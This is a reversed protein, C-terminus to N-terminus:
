RGELRGLLVRAAELHANRASEGDKEALDLRAELVDLALKQSLPVLTGDAAALGEEARRCARALSTRWDVNAPDGQVLGRQIGLEEHFWTYAQTLDGSRLALNGLQECVFALDRQWHSNEPDASALARRLRLSETFSRRATDLDGDDLALGGLRVHSTAVARQWLTDQPEAEARASKVALSKTYWDRAAELDGRQGALAGLKDYSVVLDFQWQENGPESEVLLRKRALSALYRANAADLKGRKQALGGLRNFSVALDRQWQLNKPDRRTLRELIERGAEFLAEAEESRGLSLLVGGLKGYGVALTHRFRGNGPRAAVLREALEVAARYEREVRALDGHSRALDGRRLHSGARSHLTAPDGGTEARLRELLTSSADLLRRRVGATGAVDKLERDVTFVIEDAVGLAGRLRSEALRAKKFAHAALGVLSAGVAATGGFALLQRFRGAARSAQAFRLELRNLETSLSLLQPLRPDRDWLLRRDCGREEWVLAAHWAARLLPLTEAWAARWALLENWTLVLSDHAPEVYGGGAVLLRAATLEAVVADIRRQEAADGVQLERRSVRRRALRGGEQTSMRLFLRRITAQRAADSSELLESARNQLAGAVGGATRYDEATLARDTEGSRRRRLVSRRYTEALVFSLLPLAGPMAVVEDLVTGVLEPPEFYVARREAPGVVTDRLEDSDLPPLLYRGAALAPGFLPSAALRAEFDSRLTLVVRVAPEAKTPAILEALSRLVAERRGERACQTFVEEFQDLVLLRRVGGPADDLRRLADALQRRPDEHFREALVVFWGGSDLLRPVLGARVVSSKGTGSAGVVAVLPAGAELRQALERVVRSRGFFLAADDEGYPTLGRWPNAEEVLPPDPRTRVEQVPSAFVFEGTMDPRLPWLGPTQAVGSLEAFVYQYLETATIVGDSEHAQRSSDAAGGLGALLAAAFPSHRGDGEAAGRRDALDEVFDYAVQHHAASTLLQWAAGTVFREYQSAYLPEALPLFSRTPSTWRFSGAFCCDLILLLHRCPLRALAERVRSMAIWSGADAGRADAPLLYGQPGEGGHGLALGHGAFYVVLRDDPGVSAPLDEEFLTLLREQGAEADLLSRVEYGHDESLCAGVARADDVATALEAVGAGYTDVGIVVAHSHHFASHHFASHRLASM